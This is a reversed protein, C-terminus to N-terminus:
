TGGAVIKGSVDKERNCGHRLVVHHEDLLRYLHVQQLYDRALQPPLSQALADVPVGFLFGHEVEYVLTCALHPTVAVTPPPSKNIVKYLLQVVWTEVRFDEEDM